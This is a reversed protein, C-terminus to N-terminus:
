DIKCMRLGAHKKRKLEILCVFGAKVRVLAVHALCAIHWHCLKPVNNM